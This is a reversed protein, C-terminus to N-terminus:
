SCPELERSGAMRDLCNTISAARSDRQTPGVAAPPPGAGLVALPAGDLTILYTTAARSTWPHVVVITAEAFPLDQALYTHGGREYDLWVDLMTVREAFAPPAALAAIFLLSICLGIRPGRSETMRAM